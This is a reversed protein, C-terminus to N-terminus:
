SIKYVFSALIWWRVRELKDGVAEFILGELCRSIM